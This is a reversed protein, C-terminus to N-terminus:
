LATERVQLSIKKLIQIVRDGALGDAQAKAILETLRRGLQQEASKRPTPQSRETVVAGRRRRLDLWGESALQRYAQAVTNHHVGLDTALRRVTPLHDDTRLLGAVLHARIQDVIQRYAPVESDLDISIIPSTDM